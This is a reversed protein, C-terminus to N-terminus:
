SKDGIEKRMIAVNGQQAVRVFGCKEYLRVPGNFDFAFRSDRLRPYGEAVAYGDAKADSVVRELLATAVGQGRFEPAIEFCVISKTRGVTNGLIFADFRFYNAKDNANCWGIAKGDAFALYGKLISSAIQREACKRLARKFGEKGGNAEVQGFLDTKHQEESMTDSCCYCPQMPSNDTFARNDFFDFFDAALDPTLPEIELVM